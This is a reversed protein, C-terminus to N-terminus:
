WIATGGTTLRRGGLGDKDKKLLEPNFPVVWACAGNVETAGVSAFESAGSDELSIAEAAGIM